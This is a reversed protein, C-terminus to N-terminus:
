YRMKVFLGPSVTSWKSHILPNPYEDFSEFDYGGACYLRCGLLLGFSKLPIDYAVSIDGGVGATIYRRSSLLFNDYLSIQQDRAISPFGITASIQINPILYYIVGVGMYLHHLTEKFDVSVTGLINNVAKARYKLVGDMFISQFDAVIIYQENVRYGIRANYNSRLDVLSQERPTDFTLDPYNFEDDKFSVSVINEGMGIDFYFWKASLPVIGVLLLLFIFVRKM